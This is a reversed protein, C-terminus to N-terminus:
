KREEEAAEQLEHALEYREKAEEYTVRKRV